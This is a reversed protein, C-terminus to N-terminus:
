EAAAFAFRGGIQQLAADFSIFAVGFPPLEIRGAAVAVGRATVDYLLGPAAIELAATRASLNFACLLRDGDLVREFALIPEAAPHLILDGAILEPRTTRWALLRRWVHLLAGPDEEQRDVALRHHEDPMPLWPAKADTFGAHPVGALWPLPTRCGDRGRFEPFFAIGYPDRLASEPVMAESLGLEEGQYLCVSGKLSLLLAVLMREFRHCLAADDAWDRGASWRSVAREVDHNSFAWCIWGAPDARAAEDLAAHFSTASLEQRLLRMTYAMHLRQGASYSACRGLAGPESSVEGLTTRDPWGDVFRRIRHLLAPTDAHMMDHLHAQLRFPKVPVVGGAVPQAPNDALSPDHLYFDVADLRFGDVGRDLWFRGTELLAALTEPNRLNLQPQCSLFHHLYYQRRRPEWSWAAGGFVALWNNPPSGDPRPDAWVYWDAHPGTRASRSSRFWPHQNSSHSWVQDILIKLGLVHARAVLADFDALTGFRPDVACYDSVDYGFDAMPSAFFPAVWIADVGLRAVHDLKATIGNLDGIGDGNSDAFSWPYIQYIVAGRWWDPDLGAGVSRSADGNEWAMMSRLAAVSGSQILM